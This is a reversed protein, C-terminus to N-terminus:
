LSEKEARSAGVWHRLFGRCDGVVQMSILDGRIEMCPLDKANERLWLAALAEFESRDFTADSVNDAIETKIFVLIDEDDEDTVAIITDNICEIIDYGSFHLFKKIAEFEQITPKM